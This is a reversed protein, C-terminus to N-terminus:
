LGSAAGRPPLPCFPVYLLVLYYHCSITCCARRTRSLYYLSAIDATKKDRHDRTARRQEHQSTHYIAGDGELQLRLRVGRIDGVHVGSLEEEDGQQGEDLRLLRDEADVDEMAVAIPGGLRVWGGVQGRQAVVLDVLRAVVEAVLIDRGVGRRADVLDVTVNDLVGLDGGLRRDVDDELAGGHAEELTEVRGDAGLAGLEQGVAAGDVARQVAVLQDRHTGDGGSSRAGVRLARCPELAAAAAQVGHGARVLVEGRVVVQLRQVARGGEVTAEEGDDVVGEVRGGVGVLIGIGTLSTGVGTVARTYQRHDATKSKMWTEVMWLVEM